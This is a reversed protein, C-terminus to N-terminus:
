SATADNIRFSVPGHRVIPSLAHCEKKNRSRRFVVKIRKIWVLAYLIFENHVCVCRKVTATKKNNKIALDNIITTEKIIALKLVRIKWTYYFPNRAPGPMSNQIYLNGARKCPYKDQKQCRITRIRLAHWTIRTAVTPEYILIIYECTHTYTIIIFPLIFITVVWFMYYYYYYYYFHYEASTQRTHPALWPPQRHVHRSM